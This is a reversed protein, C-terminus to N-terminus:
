EDKKQAEEKIKKMKLLIEGENGLYEQKVIKLSEDLTLIIPTANPYNM